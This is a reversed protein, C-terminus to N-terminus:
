SFTQIVATIKVSLKQSSKQKTKNEKQLLQIRNKNKICVFLRFM